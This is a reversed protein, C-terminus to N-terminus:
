RAGGIRAVLRPHYTALVKNAAAIEALALQRAEEYQPGRSLGFRYVAQEAQKEAELVRPPIQSGVQVAVADPIPVAPLNLAIM